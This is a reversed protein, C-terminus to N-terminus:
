LTERSERRRRALVRERAATFDILAPERTRPPRQGKADELAEEWLAGERPRGVAGSWDHLVEAIQRTSSPPAALVRALRRVLAEGDRRCRRAGGDFSDDGQLWYADLAAPTWSLVGEPIEYHQFIAALRSVPLDHVQTPGSKPRKKKATSTTKM